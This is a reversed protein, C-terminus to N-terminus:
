SPASTWLERPPRGVQLSQLRAPYEPSGQSHLRTPDNIPHLNKLVMGRGGKEGRGRFAVSFTKTSFLAASEGRRKGGKHSGPVPLAADSGGLNVTHDCSPPTLSAAGSRSLSGGSIQLHSSRRPPRCSLFPTPIAPACNQTTKLICTKQPGHWAGGKEGRGAYHSRFSKRRFCCRRSLADNGVRMPAPFRFRLTPVESTSRITAHVHRSPPPTRAHSRAGRFKHGDHSPATHGECRGSGASQKACRCTSM